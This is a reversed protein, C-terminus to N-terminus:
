CSAADVFPKKYVPHDSGGRIKTEAIELARNYMERQMPASVCPRMATAWAGLLPVTATNTLFQRRNPIVNSWTDLSSFFM